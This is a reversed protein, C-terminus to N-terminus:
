LVIWAHMVVQRWTCIHLIHEGSESSVSQTGRDPSILVKVKIEQRTRWAVKECSLVQQLGHPDLSSHSGEFLAKM